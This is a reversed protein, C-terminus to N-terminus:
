KSAVATGGNVEFRAEYAISKIFHQSTTFEDVGMTGNAALKDVIKLMADTAKEVEQCNPSGVGSNDATRKHFLQDIKFRSDDFESSRLVYPWNIVNHDRDFQDPTLRHQSSLQNLHRKYNEVTQRKQAIRAQENQQVLSLQQERGSQIMKLNGYAETVAQQHIVEAQAHEEQGQGLGAAAQGFGAMAAGAGIGAGMAPTMGGYGYGGGVGIAQYGYNPHYGYQYQARASSTLLLLSAIAVSAFTVISHTRRTSTVKM